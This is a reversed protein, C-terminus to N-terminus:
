PPGHRHALPPASSIGDLRPSSIVWLASVAFRETIVGSKITTIPEPTAACDSLGESTPSSSGLFVTAVPAASQHGDNEGQSGDLSCM